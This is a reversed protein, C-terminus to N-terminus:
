LGRVGALALRRALPRARGGARTAASEAALRVVTKGEDDRVLLRESRVRVSATPILARLELLPALADRLPGEPLDEPLFRRREAGVDAAPGPPGGAAAGLELRGDELALTLGRAHLRGDFTDYYTRRADATGDPDAGLRRAIAARRTGGPLM